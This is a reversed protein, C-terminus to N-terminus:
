MAALDSLPDARSPRSARTASTTTSVGAAPPDEARDRVDNRVGHAVDRERAGRLGFEHITTLNVIAQNHLRREKQADRFHQTISPIAEALRANPDRPPDQDRRWQVPVSGEIEDLRTECATLRTATDDLDLWWRTWDTLHTGVFSVSAIFGAIAALWTALKKVDLKGDDTNYLM